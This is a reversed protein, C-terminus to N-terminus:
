GGRPQGPWRVVEHIVWGESRRGQRDLTGRAVWKREDTALIRVPLLTDVAPLIALATKGLAGERLVRADALTLRLSGDDTALGREDIRAPGVAIGDLIVVHRRHPGRWDIWVLAADEALFRGWWLEDIPMQWPPLTLTLHEAYGLGRIPPESALTVAARARPMLCRWEVRGEPAALVTDRAEPALAEWRGSVDLAPASWALVGGDIVPPPASRLTADVRTPSGARQVLTSTYRIALARWRVEAAYAIFVDGGDGVCDLYWKSLTFGPRPETTM